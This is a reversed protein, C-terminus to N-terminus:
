SSPPSEVIILYSVKLEVGHDVRIWTWPLLLLDGTDTEDELGLRFLLSARAGPGPTTGAGAMTTLSAPTMGRGLRSLASSSM